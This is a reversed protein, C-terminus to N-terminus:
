VVGFSRGSNMRRTVTSGGCGSLSGDWVSIRKRGPDLSSYKWVFDIEDQRAAATGVPDLELGTTRRHLNDLRMSTLMKFMTTLM